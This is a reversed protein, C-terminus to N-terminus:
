EIQGFVKLCAPLGVSGNISRLALLQDVPEGTEHPQARLVANKNRWARGVPTSQTRNQIAPVAPEPFGADIESFRAQERLKIRLRADHQLAWAGIGSEVGVARTPAAAEKPALVLDGLRHLM